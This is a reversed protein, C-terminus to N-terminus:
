RTVKYSCPEAAEGVTGERIPAKGPAATAELVPAPLNSVAVGPPDAAFGVGASVPLALGDAGIGGEGMLEDGSSSGFQALANGKVRVNSISNSEM